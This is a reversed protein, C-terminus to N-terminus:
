LVFACLFVVSKDSFDTTKLFIDYIDFFSPM